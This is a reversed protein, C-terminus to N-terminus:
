TRQFGADPGTAGPAVRPLANVIVRSPWSSRGGSRTGARTTMVDRAAQDAAPIVNAETLRAVSANLHDHPVALSGAGIERRGRCSARHGGM